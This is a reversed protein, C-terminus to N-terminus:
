GSSFSAPAPDDDGVRLWLAAHGAARARRGGGQWRWRGYRMRSAAWGGNPSVRALRSASSRRCCPPRSLRAIWCRWWACGCGAWRVAGCPMGGRVPLATAVLWLLLSFLNVGLLGGLTWVVNVPRSGDGLVGAAAGFGFVLALVAAVALVLRARGHWHLIADRWGERVGIADARHLIRTELDAAAARACRPM